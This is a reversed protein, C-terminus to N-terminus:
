WNVMVTLVTYTRAASARVRSSSCGIRSHSTSRGSWSRKRVHQRECRSTASKSGSAREGVCHAGGPQYHLARKLRGNSCKGQPEVASAGAEVTKACWNRSSVRKASCCTSLMREM